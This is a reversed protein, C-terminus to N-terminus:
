ARGQGNRATARCPPSQAGFECLPQQMRWGDDGDLIPALEIKQKPLNGGLFPLESVSYTMEGIGQFLIGMMAARGPIKCLETEQCQIQRLRAFIQPPVQRDLSRTTDCLAQGM